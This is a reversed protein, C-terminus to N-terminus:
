WVAQCYYILTLANKCQIYVYTTWNGREHPFGRVRGEHDESKVMEVQNLAKEKFMDVLETPLPLRIEKSPSTEIIVDSAKPQQDDDTKQCIRKSQNCSGHLKRKHEETFSTVNPAEDEESSSDVHEYLVGISALAGSIDDILILM